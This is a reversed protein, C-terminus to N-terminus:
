LPWGDRAQDLVEPDRCGDQITRFVREAEAVQKQQVRAALLALHARWYDPAIEIARRVHAVGEDLRHEKLLLTGYNLHASAHRPYAALLTQFEREAQATEGREALDTALGLRAPSYGPDLRVAERFSATKRDRDGLRRYIEGLAFHGMASPHAALVKNALALGREQKGSVVLQRAIELYVADNGGGIRHDSEALRAAPQLQALGLYAMALMGSYFANDPDCAV